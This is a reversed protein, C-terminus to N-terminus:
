TNRATLGHLRLAGKAELGEPRSGEQRSALFTLISVEANPDVCNAPILVGLM